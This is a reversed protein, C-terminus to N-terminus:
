ADAERIEAVEWGAGLRRLAIRRADEATRTKCQIWRSRPGGTQRVQVRYAQQVEAPVPEATRSTTSPNRKVPMEVNSFQALLEFYGEDAADIKVGVGGEAVNRLAAPVLRQWVVEGTLSIGRGGSSLSSLEIRLPQGVEAPAGTQLFLGTRSVDLVVGSHNRPGLAFRCPMRRRFRPEPEM